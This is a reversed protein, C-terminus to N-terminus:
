PLPNNWACWTGGKVRFCEAIVDAERNTIIDSCSVFRLASLLGRLTTNRPEITRGGIGELSEPSRFIVIIRERWDEQAGHRRRVRRSFALPEKRCVVWPMFNEDLYWALFHWRDVENKVPKFTRPPLRTFGFLHDTAILSRRFNVVKHPM